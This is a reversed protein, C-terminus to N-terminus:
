LYWAAAQAEDKPVGRGAEYLGGLEFQARGDRQDAAKRYWEAALAYDRTVGLGAQYMLGLSYQAGAHGKYAARRYWTAAAEFDISRGDGFKYLDGLGNEAPAFGVNAGLEVAYRFLRTHVHTFHVLLYALALAALQILALASSRARRGKQRETHGVSGEAGSDREADSM